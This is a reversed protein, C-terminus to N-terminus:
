QCTALPLGEATAISGLDIQLTENPVGGHNDILGDAIGEYSALSVGITLGAAAIRRNILEPTALPLIINCTQDWLMWKVTGDQARFVSRSASAKLINTAGSKVVSCLGSEVAELYRETSEISLSAPVPPGNARLVSVEARGPEPATSYAIAITEDCPFLRVLCGQPSTNISLAQLLLGNLDPDIGQSLQISGDYQTVRGYLESKASGFFVICSAKQQVNVFFAFGDAQPVLIIWKGDPTLLWSRINAGRYSSREIARNKRITEDAESQTM